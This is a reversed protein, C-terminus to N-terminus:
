FSMYVDKGIRNQRSVSGVCKRTAHFIPTPEIELMCANVARAAGSVRCNRVTLFQELPHLKSFIVQTSWSQHCGIMSGLTLRQTMTELTRRKSGDM